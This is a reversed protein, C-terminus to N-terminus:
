YCQTSSWWYLAGDKYNWGPEDTEYPVVDVTGLIIIEVNTQVDYCYGYIITGDQTESIKPDGISLTKTESNITTEAICMRQSPKPNEIIKAYTFEPYYTKDEIWVLSGNEMDWHGEVPTNSEWVAYLVYSQNVPVQDGPSVTESSDPSNVAWYLFDYGERVFDCYPVEREEGASVEIPEMYGTGGNADFTITLNETWIAYFTTTGNTINRTQGPKFKIMGSETLAWGTFTCGEKEFDCEPLEYDLSYEKSTFTDPEMTGSTFGNGDFIVEYNYKTIERTYWNNSSITLQVINDASELYRGSIIYDNNNERYSAYTLSIEPLQSGAPTTYVIQVYQEDAADSTYFVFYDISLSDSFYTELNSEDYYVLTSETSDYNWGPEYDTQSQNYPEDHQEFDINNLNLTVRTPSDASYINAEGTYTGSSDDYGDGYKTIIIPESSSDYNYSLVLCDTYLSAQNISYVWEINDPNTYIIRGDADDYSWGDKIYVFPIGEVTFNVQSLGAYQANTGSITGTLTIMGPIVDDDNFDNIQLTQTAMLDGSEYYLNVTIVLEDRQGERHYVIKTIEIDALTESDLYYVLNNDECYFGEKENSSIEYEEQLEQYSIEDLYISFQEGQQIDFIEALESNWGTLVFTNEPIGADTFVLPGPVYGNSMETFELVVVDNTYIYANIPHSLEQISTNYYFLIKTDADNDVLNWGDAYDSQGSGSNIENVKRASVIFTEPSDGCRTCMGSFTWTGSANDLEGTCEIYTFIIKEESMGEPMNGTVVSPSCELELTQNDINYTATNILTQLECYDNGESYTGTHYSEQPSSTGVFSWQVNELYNTGGGDQEITLPVGDIYFRSILSGDNICIGDMSGTYEQGSVEPPPSFVVDSINTEFITDGDQERLYITANGSTVYVISEIITGVSGGNVYCEFSATNQNYTVTTESAANVLHTNENPLAAVSLAGIFAFGLFALAINKFKKFFSKM